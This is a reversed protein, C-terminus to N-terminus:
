GSCFAKAVGTLEVCKVSDDHRAKDLADVLEEVMAYDLSNMMAPNNLTITAIKGEVAYKIVTYEKDGM